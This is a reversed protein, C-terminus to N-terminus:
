FCYKSIKSVMNNIRPLPYADLKTYCNIKQSYDIVIHKKHKETEKTVLVQARRPSKSPKITGEDLLRETEKKIFEEDDKTHRSSKVAIPKCDSSLHTFLSPPLVKM